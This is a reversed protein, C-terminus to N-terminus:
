ITITFVSGNNVKSSVSIEGNHLKVARKVISLGLGASKIQNKHSRYFREFIHSIDSDSIGIGTDCIEVIARQDHQYLKITVTGGSVNYKVGNLCIRYLADELISSVGSVEIPIIDTLIKVKYQQSIDYLRSVVSSIVTDLKVPSFDIDTQHEDLKSISILDDVLEILYSTENYIEKCSIPIDMPQMLGSALFQSSHLISKLPTKIEHYVNASFERRLQYADSKKNNDVILIVVGSVIDSSYIPSLHLTYFTNSIKTEVEQNEGNLASETANKVDICRILTIINKYYFDLIDIDLIKKAKKNISIINGKNNLIILGDAINETITNFKDAKEAMRNRQQQICEKQLKIRSIFPYLEDYPIKLQDINYKNLPSIIMKTLYNSIFLSIIIVLFSLTLMYPISQIIITPLSDHVISLRLINNDALKVAYYYTEQGDIASNRTHWAEGNLSANKIEPRDSYSSSLESLPYVSDVIVDGNPSVVTIRSSYDLNNLYELYDSPIISIAQALSLTDQKVSYKEYSFLKNSCFLIIFINFIFISILTVGCISLFIRKKIIIM